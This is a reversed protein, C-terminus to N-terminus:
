SGAVVIMTYERHSADFDARPVALANQMRSRTAVICSCSACMVAQELTTLESQRKKLWREHTAKEIQWCLKM